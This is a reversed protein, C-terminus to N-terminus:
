KDKLGYALTIEMKTINTSENHHTAKVLSTAGEWSMGHGYKWM